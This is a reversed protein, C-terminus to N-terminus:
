IGAVWKGEELGQAKPAKKFIKYFHVVHRSFMMDYVWLNFMELGEMFDYIISLMSKMVSMWVVLM